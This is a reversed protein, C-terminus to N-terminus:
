ITHTHRGGPAPDQDREWGDGRRERGWIDGLAGDGELDQHLVSLLWSVSEYFHPFSLCACPKWMRNSMSRCLSYLLQEYLYSYSRWLRWLDKGWAMGKDTTGRGTNRPAWQLLLVCNQFVSNLTIALSWYSSQQTCGTWCAHCVESTVCFCIYRDYKYKHSAIIGLERANAGPKGNSLYTNSWINM